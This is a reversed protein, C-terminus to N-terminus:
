NRLLLLTNFTVGSALAMILRVVALAVLM